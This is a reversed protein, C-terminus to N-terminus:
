TMSSNLKQLVDVAKLMHQYEPHDKGLCYLDIELGKEAWLLAMYTNQLM